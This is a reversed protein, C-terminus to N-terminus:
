ADSCGGWALMRFIMTYLASCNDEGQVGHALRERADQRRAQFLDAVHGEDIVYLGPLVTQTYGTNLSDYERSVEYGPQVRTPRHSTETLFFVLSRLRIDKNPEGGLQRPDNM